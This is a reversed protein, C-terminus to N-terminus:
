AKRGAEGKNKEYIINSFNEKIIATIKSLTEEVSNNVVVYDFLNSLAIEERAKKLRKTILEETETKRGEIRRELESLSPPMLFISCIEHERKEQKYKELIQKAGNTEIELFPIKGSEYIHAIESRLTGYYNDFHKSHELLREEAVFTQFMDNSIFYYHVGDIESERPPRTTISVSLKLKLEKNDFLSKEITGKGVGSPGTFIILKKDM